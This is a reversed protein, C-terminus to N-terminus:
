VWRAGNSADRRKVVLAGSRERWAAKVRRTMSHKKTNTCRQTPKEIQGVSRGSSRLGSEEGQVRPIIGRYSAIFRQERHPITLKSGGRGKDPTSPHPRVNDWLAISGVAWKWRVLHEDASHIHLNLFQLLADSEAKKLEAFGTCYAINV